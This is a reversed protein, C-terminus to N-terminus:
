WCAEPKYCFLVSPMILFIPPVQTGWHVGLFNYKLSYLFGIKKRMRQPVHCKEGKSYEFANWCLPPFMAFLQLCAWHSCYCSPAAQLELSVQIGKCEISADSSFAAGGPLFLFVLHCGQMTFVTSSALFILVSALRQCGYGVAESDRALGTSCHTSVTVARQESLVSFQAWIVMM